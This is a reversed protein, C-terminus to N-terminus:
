KVEFTRGDVLREDQFLEVKFKGKPLGNKAKLTTSISQHITSPITATAIVQDKASGAEIATWVFRIGKVMTPQKLEWGAHLVKDQPSFAAVTAGPGGRGDDSSLKFSTTEVTQTLTPGNKITFKERAVEKGNMLLVAEHTGAPWGGNPIFSFRFPCGTKNEKLTISRTGESDIMGGLVWGVEIWTALGLDAIGSFVVKDKTDFERTVDVPQNKDDLGKSLTVSKLESVIADKPPSVRFPFTGLPQGDLTVVASYCDGVPLPEDHTLNFGAFTNQGASLLIGKNVTAVDVEAEAIVNDRFLFQTAVKGTKPRGKLEVSLYITEDPHFAEAKDKPAQSDLLGHCFTAAKFPSENGWVAGAAGWTLMAALLPLLSGHLNKM